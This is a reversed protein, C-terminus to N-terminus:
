NKPIFFTPFQMVTHQHCHQCTGVFQVAPAIEPLAEIAIEQTIEVAPQITPETVQETDAVFETTSTPKFVPEEYESDDSDTGDDSSMIFAFEETEEVETEETEKVTKTRKTTKTSKASKKAKKAPKMPPFDIEEPESQKRKRHYGERAMKRRCEGCYTHVSGRKTLYDDENVIFRCAFCYLGNPTIREGAKGHKGKILEFDAHCRGCVNGIHIERVLGCKKCETINDM